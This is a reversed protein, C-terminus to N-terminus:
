KKKKNEQENQRKWECKKHTTKTNEEDEIQIHETQYMTTTVSRKTISHRQKKKKKNSYTAEEKTREKLKANRSRNWKLENNSWIDPTSRKKRHTTCKKKMSRIRTCLSHLLYTLLKKCVSSQNETLSHLSFKCNTWLYVHMKHKNIGIPWQFSIFYLVSYCVFYGVQFWWRSKLGFRFRFNVIDFTLSKFCNWTM